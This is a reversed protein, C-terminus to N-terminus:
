VGSRIADWLIPAPCFVTEVAGFVIEDGPELRHPARLLEGNVRTGNRSAADGVYFVGEEDCRLWAHFKSVSEHRFVVDNNRARGVSVRESFSKGAEPRKRVPVAFHLARVLRIALQAAGFLAPRKSPRRFDDAESRTEFGMTPELRAGGQDAIERLVVALESQVDDLRVLLFPADVHTAFAEKANMWALTVISGPELNRTPAAPV